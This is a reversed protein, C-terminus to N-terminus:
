TISISGWLVIFAILICAISILLIIYYLTPISSIAQNLSSQFFITSLILAYAGLVVFITNILLHSRDLIARHKEELIAELKQQYKEEQPDKAFNWM